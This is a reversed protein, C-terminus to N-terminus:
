TQTPKYGVTSVGNFSKRHIPTPGLDKLAMRHVLTPYGANTNFGYGPYKSDYKLMLDDRYSKAVVSSLGILLSKADGKILPYAVISKPLGPPIFKGDVLLIGKKKMMDKPMQKLSQKMALLSANFINIKDIKGPTIRSISIYFSLFKFGGLEIKSGKLLIGPIIGLEKLITGRRFENLKKSDTVGLNRLYIQFTEFEDQIGSLNKFSKDIIVTASAAVVPGALPGRGVEDCGAM